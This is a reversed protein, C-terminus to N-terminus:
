IHRQMNRVERSYDTILELLLTMILRCESSPCHRTALFEGNDVLHRIDKVLQISYTDHYDNIAGQYCSFLPIMFKM